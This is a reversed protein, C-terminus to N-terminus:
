DYYKARQFLNRKELMKFIKRELSRNFKTVFFDSSSLPNILISTIGIRNAGLIDAMLQDGIAAIETIQYPYTKLVKLYKRKLPKLSLCSADVNLQEKFPRVRNKGSNSFIIIKFGKDALNNFLEKVKQDPVDKNVPTITNDLDFLLCKIGQKILKDYDITYISKAYVDPVFLEMKDGESINYRIEYFFVIIIM